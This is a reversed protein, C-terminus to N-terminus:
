RKIRDKISQESPLDIQKNLDDYFESFNINDFNLREFEELSMGRCNPHKKSGFGIKLQGQRGQQQVIKALKSNFVCYSRKKQLCVGLVEKSCYEGVSIALGKEKAGGLEKEESNCGAIGIDQGWGGDKCCNNYGATAKRCHLDKGSFIKINEPDENIDSAAETVAQLTSAVDGFDQNKQQAKCEETECNTYFLEGCQKGIKKYTACSYDITFQTCNNHEDFMSCVKKDQTCSKDNDLVACEPSVDVPKEYTEEYEFCSFRVTHAVGLEDFYVRETDGILCEKKTLKYKKELSRINLESDQYDFNCKRTWTTEPLQHRKRVLLKYTISLNRCPMGSCTFNEGFHAQPLVGTYGDRTQYLRGTITVVLSQKGIVEQYINEQNYGGINIQYKSYKEPRPPYYSIRQHHNITRNFINYTYDEYGNFVPHYNSYHGNHYLVRAMLHPTHNYDLTALILRGNKSPTFEFYASNKTSKNLIVKLEQTETLEEWTEEGEKWKVTPTVTCYGYEVNDQLCSKKNYIPDVLQTVTPTCFEGNPGTVIGNQMYFGDAILDDEKSLAPKNNISDTIPQKFESENFKIVGDGKILDDNTKSGKYYKTETPNSNAGGEIFQSTDTQKISKLDPKISNGFNIGDKYSQQDNTNTAQVLFSTFVILFTLQKKM